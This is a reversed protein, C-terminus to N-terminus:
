VVIIDGNETQILKERIQETYDDLLETVPVLQIVKRGNEDIM